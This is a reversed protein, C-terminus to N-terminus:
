TGEKLDEGRAGAVVARTRPGVGLEVAAALDAATDIDRRLGPWEGRLRVAGTAAHAAASDAGFCPRLAVGAPAALLVTGSGAADVVYGRVAAGLAGARGLAGALEQTRLAPLDAALAAVGSRSARARVAAAVMAAAYALAPNLGADPVDAIVDAGADLAAQSAARDGTVVVVRDAAPSARAATITDLAMALVLDGHDAGPVAGRLRSKALELRKIPIVVTWSVTWDV